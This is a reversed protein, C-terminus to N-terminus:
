PHIGDDFTLAAVNDKNCKTVLNDIQSRDLESFSISKKTKHSKELTIKKQILKNKPDKKKFCNAVCIGPNCHENSGCYGYKSCCPADAPCEFNNFIGCQSGFSKRIMFIIFLCYLENKFNM